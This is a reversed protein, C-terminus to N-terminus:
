SLQIGLGFYKILNKMQGEVSLDLVQSNVQVKLGALIESDVSCLLKVETANCYDKLSVLLSEKQADTLPVASTVRAISIKMSDSLSSTFKKIIADVCSIRNKEILVLLFNITVTDVFSSFVKKAATQKDNLAVLPHELYLRLVPYKKFLSIITVLDKIIIDVKNTSKAAQILAEAYPTAVKSEIVTKM